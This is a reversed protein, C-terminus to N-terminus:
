LLPLCSAVGGYLCLALNRVSVRREVWISDVNCGGSGFIASGHTSSAMAHEKSQAVDAGGLKCYFLVSRRIRCPSTSLVPIGVLASRPSLWSIAPLYRVGAIAFAVKEACQGQDALSNASSIARIM